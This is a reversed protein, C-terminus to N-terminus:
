ARIKDRVQSVVNSTDIQSAALAGASQEAFSSALSSMVPNSDHWM